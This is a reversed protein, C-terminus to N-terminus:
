QMNGGWLPLTFTFNSGVDLTSECWVQGKHAEIIEKVIVLGLGTGRVESDFGKVQVFKDFIKDLYEPPIGVGTDKVSVFMKNDKVRAGIVIEDGANTYKIANTILNNVVWTIKEFDAEVKPLNDDIDYYLAIDKKQAQEYFQKVSTEAIGAVSCPQFNFFARDSELKSLQLLENLLNTLRIEDENITTLVSRQEENLAGMNEELIMSTGMIISALPTKFEHSITAIFDARIKELKKLQTVDQFIVILGTVNADVGKITTVLVNFYFDDNSRVRIIKEKYDERSNLVSSIHDFVEGNRIAELFHKNIVSQEQINFFEECANNLLMIKYNTDLVVLPDSISKVITLSKNKEAMLNGLTSQEYQQLRRTLNNYEAALVGVEDQSDVSVQKDLNGPKALKVAETLSYMPELFRNTSFRSLLFGGIVAISSAALIIYMSHEANGTASNKDQFMAKENLLSLDKLEQKLNTFNPVIQSNYYEIAKDTGQSNLIEQLQSFSKTYANYCSNIKEVYENEHPETINNHEVIYWNLFTNSNQTFLDIGKQRDVNIYILMSSDQRELADVMNNIAGISKYNDTMLGNIARSLEYLNLVSVAGVIAIVLVLCLYVSSIKGKLTNFM